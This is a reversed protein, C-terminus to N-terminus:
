LEGSLKRRLIKVDEDFMKEYGTLQMHFDGNGSTLTRICKSFGVLEALPATCEFIRTQDEEVWSCKNVNTRRRSLEGQILHSYIEPVTITVRMVPELVDGPIQNFIKSLCAHACANILSTNVNPSMVFETLTVHIDQVPYGLSPGHYCANICGDLIAQRIHDPINALHGFYDHRVNALSISKLSGINIESRRVRLGVCVNVKKNNQSESIEHRDEVTTTSFKLSEKYAIQVAGLFVDLGFETKLRDKIIEIQLEGMGRLVTQLSDPDVSIRLSPDEKALIELASDFKKQLALSPSEISCFFVPDPAEISALVLKNDSTTHIDDIRSVGAAINKSAFQKYADKAEKARTESEVITDGTVTSLLGPVCAINGVSVSEVEIMEDSNPVYIRQIHESRNRNVNFIKTSPKLTGSYLRLFTLCGFRFNFLSELHPHTIIKFALACLSDNGYFKTFLRPRELPSPLFKCIASLLPQVGVKQASSGCLVPVVKQLSPSQDDFTSSILCSRVAKNIFNVPIDLLCNVSLVQEALQEDIEALTGILRERLHQIREFNASNNEIDTIDFSKGDPNEESWIIQKLNILDTLSRFTRGVSLPINLLVPKLKLKEEISQLCKDVSADISYNFLFSSQALFNKSEIVFDKVWLFCCAVIFKSTKDIKNLYILSPVGFKRAQSWVKLTQAEVGKSGDLITVAGDLVRLSREVELTFDVHGPTDILNIRHQEWDFTVAASTITI